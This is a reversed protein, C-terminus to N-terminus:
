ETETAAGGFLKEYDAIVSSKANSAKPNPQKGYGDDAGIRVADPFMEAYRTENSRLRADMARADRETTRPQSFVQEYNKAAARANSNNLISPSDTPPPQDQAQESTSYTQALIDGLKAWDEPTM